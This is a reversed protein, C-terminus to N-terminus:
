HLDPYCLTLGILTAIPGDLNANKEIKGNYEIPGSQVQWQDIETMVPGM